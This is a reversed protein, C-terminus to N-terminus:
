DGQEMTRLRKVQAETLEIDGATLSDLLQEPRSASIIPVAAFPQNTLWALSLAAPTCCMEDCMERVRAGIAANEPFHFRARAKPSLAEEGSTLLKALYGKAQSSFPMCLMGTQRHLAYMEGDMIQLTPDPNVVQRALSWQPQNGEFGRLGHAAAYANAERIRAASWNSAGACGIHGASIMDNLTDVIEAVPRQPDDRHLWWIDIFDTQLADMSDRLDSLISARDLRRAGNVAPFAGKTSIVLEGRNGRKAMWAGVVGECIGYEGAEPRGYMRASDIVNGGMECYLDLMEEAASASKAVGFGDTGLAICAMPKSIARYDVKKM